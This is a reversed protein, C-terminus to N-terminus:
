RSARKGKARRRKRKGVVLARLRGGGGRHDAYDGYGRPERSIADAARAMSSRMYRGFSSRRSALIDDDEEQPGGASGFDTFAPTRFVIKLFLVVALAGLIVIVIFIWNTILWQSM